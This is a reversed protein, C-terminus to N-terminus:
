VNKKFKDLGLKYGDDYSTVICELEKIMDKTDIEGNLVKSVYNLIIINDKLYLNFLGMVYYFSNLYCADEDLAFRYLIKEDEDLKGSILMNYSNIFRSANSILFNLRNSCVNKFIYIDGMEYATILEVLIPVVEELTKVTKNEESYHDKIGHCLEHCLFPSSYDAVAKPIHIVNAEKYYCGTNEKISSFLTFLTPNEEDIIVKKITNLLLNANRTIKVDGFLQLDNIADSYVKEPTRNHYNNPESRDKYQLYIQKAIEYCRSYEEKTFSDAQLVTHFQTITDVYENSIYGYIEKGM